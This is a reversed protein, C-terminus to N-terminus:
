APLTRVITSCKRQVTAGLTLNRQQSRVLPYSLGASYVDATGSASLDSFDKGLEYYTHTYGLQGRLGSGGLPAGYALTGFWMSENTYLLKLSLQDGLTFPSNIEGNLHLRNAGQSVAATTTWGSSM